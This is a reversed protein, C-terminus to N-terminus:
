FTPLYRQGSRLLARCYYLSGKLNALKTRDANGEWELDQILKELTAIKDDLLILRPKSEVPL